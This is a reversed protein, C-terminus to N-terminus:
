YTVVFDHLLQEAEQEKAVRAQWRRHFADAYSRQVKKLKALDVEGTFFIATDSVKEAMDKQVADDCAKKLERM